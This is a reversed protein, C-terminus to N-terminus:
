NLRMQAPCRHEADLWDALENGPVFNRAEALYYAATAIWAERERDNLPKGTSPNGEAAEADNKRRAVISRGLYKIILLM